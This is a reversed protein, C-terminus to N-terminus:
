KRRRIVKYSRKKHSRVSRRRMSRRNKNKRTRRRRGGSQEPTYSPSVVKLVGGISQEIQQNTNGVLGGMYQNASSCSM